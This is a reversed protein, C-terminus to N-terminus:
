RRSSAQNIKLNEKLLEIYEEGIPSLHINRKTVFGIHMVADVEEGKLRLMKYQSGNIDDDIIGSCLTYADLQNILGLASGRDSITIKRHYDKEALIEEAYYISDADRQEFAICPYPALEEFSVTDKPALPHNESLYVCASCEILPTFILDNNRLDKEIVKFNYDSFFLIGIESKLTGVDDIVDKTTTERFAFEYDATDYKMVLETFAKVAFSYHQTSVGFKKRRNNKTGFRDILVDYQQCVQKAYILFDRGDGTLEVGKGSRIFISFGLESELEKMAKTLSPQSIYLSEAAKNISGLESITISYILQQLTM